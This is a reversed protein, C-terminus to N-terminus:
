VKLKRRLQVVNPLAPDRKLAERFIAEAGRLEGLRILTEALSRMWRAEEKPSFGLELLLEICEVYLEPDVSSKLKLRVIEKLFTEVEGMFHRFYPRRREERVLVTLLMFAEYYRQRKELEEALIFLCDMWDERELYKELPFDLGGQAQWLDLADEEELHLLDFFILKAQSEPDDKRERLFNRYDFRFTEVFRRYARDYEYRREQDSLTEYATLLKRMKESALDGAIDPHLLKAKERFARKIDRASADATIGLVRYYNDM